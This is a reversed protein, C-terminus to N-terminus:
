YCVKSCFYRHLLQFNVILNLTLKWNITRLNVSEREVDTRQFLHRSWSIEKNCYSHRNKMKRIIRRDFGTQLLNKMILTSRFFKAFNVPFIYTSTEKETFNCTANRHIKCFKKSRSNPLVQAFLQKQYRPIDRHLSIRQLIWMSSIFLKRWCKPIWVNWISKLIKCLRLPTNLVMDFM